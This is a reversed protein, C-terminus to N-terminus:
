LCDKHTCVRLLTLAYHCPLRGNECRAQPNFLCRGTKGAKTQLSTEFLSVSILFFSLILSLNLAPEMKKFARKGGVMTKPKQNAAARPLQSPKLKSTTVTM